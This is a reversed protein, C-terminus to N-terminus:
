TFCDANKCTFCYVATINKIYDCPVICFVSGAMTVLKACLKFLMVVLSTLTGTMFGFVVAPVLLNIIFGKYSSLKQKIKM